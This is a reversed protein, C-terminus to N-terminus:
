LTDRSSYTNPTQTTSFVKVLQSWRIQVKLGRLSTYLPTCYGISISTSIVNLYSKNFFQRDLHGRPRRCLDVAARRSRDHIRIRGPAHINTHQWTSTEAVFHDSTWLLRALEPTDNHAILFGRPVLLGYSASPQLALSFLVYIIIQWYIVTQFM